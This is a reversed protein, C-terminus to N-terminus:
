GLPRGCRRRDSGQPTREGAHHLQVSSLSGAAAIGAALRTLGPLHDDSWIGIQGPFGQGGKQVHAAATMTLGFGGEARAVLWRYEDDSLTGDAHSQMNTLPALMFRNAMAPGRGLDLGDDLRKTM